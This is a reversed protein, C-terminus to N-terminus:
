MKDNDFYENIFYKLEEINYDNPMLKQQFIKIPTYNLDNNRCWNFHSLIMSQSKESTEVIYKKKFNELSIRNIHWDKLLEIAKEQGESLYKEVIIEYIKSYPNQENEININFYVSLKLKKPFKQFLHYADEFAKHCHGCSPSLFLGLEVNSSSNGIEIKQLSELEQIPLKQTTDLIAKFTNVNRKFRKYDRDSKKLEFYGKILPKLSVWVATTFAFSLTFYLLSILTKKISSFDYHLFSIIIIGILVISIGLCLPCWKKVKFKQYWISYLIAPIFFISIIQLYLLNGISFISLISFTGFLALCADSLTYDKYMKAGESSLVDYCGGKDTQTVGCIKSTIQNSLGFNEQLILITLGLGLLSLISYALSVWSFGIFLSTFVTLGLAIIFIVTWQFKNQSSIKSEIPNENEDIAVIIERWNSLFQNKTITTTKNEENLYTISADKKSTIYIFEEGKETSFLTMFKEPLNDFQDIPVKAALNEINFFDLTDTVAYLSPYDPHSNYYDNFEESNPFYKNDHIYKEVLKIM